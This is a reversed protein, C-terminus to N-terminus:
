IIKYFEVGALNVRSAEKNQLLTELADKSSQAFNHEVDFKSQPRLKLLKRLEDLSFELKANLAKKRAVVVPFATILKALSELIEDDVGSVDHAPPRDISSIDIRDPKIIEFALNLAEFEELTDNFGKVVLVEMVLLGRFKARFEAMKEVLNQIKINELSHDIRRFTKQVASDLSLKVIDLGLMAEFKDADLVSTGNSLILTKQTTKLCNVESVLEKLSPYLSPEGNATLTIVDINKFESLALKLESIIDSLLPPNEIANVVKAKALECYLCDFNCCKKDPSLDIGLSSGFRRSSVPGFIYKYSKKPYSM